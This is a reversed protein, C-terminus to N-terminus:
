GADTLLDCDEILGIKLISSLLLCLIKKTNNIIAVLLVSFASTLNENWMEM